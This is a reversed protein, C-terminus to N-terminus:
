RSTVQAHLKPFACAAPVYVDVPGSRLRMALRSEAVLPDRAEKPGPAAQFVVAGPAAELGIAEIHVRLLWALMPVSYDETVPAIWAWPDYTTNWPLLLSLAALGLSAACCVLAARLWGRTGARAGVTTRV